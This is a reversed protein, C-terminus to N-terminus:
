RQSRATLRALAARTVASEKDIRHLDLVRVRRVSEELDRMTEERLRLRPIGEGAKKIAQQWALALARTPATEHIEIRMDQLVDKADLRFVLRVHLLMRRAAPEHEDDEEASHEDEASQKQQEVQELNQRSETVFRAPLQLRYRRGDKRQPDATAIMRRRAAARQIWKRLNGLDYIAPLARAIQELEIRKAAMEAEVLRRKGTSYLAFAPKQSALLFDGRASRLLEVKGQWSGAEVKPAAPESAEESEESPPFRLEVRYDGAFVSQKAAFDDLAKFIRPRQASRAYGASSCLAALLFLAALSRHSM